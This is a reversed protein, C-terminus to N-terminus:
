NTKAQRKSRLYVLLAGGFSGLMMVSPEPVDSVIYYEMTPAAPKFGPEGATPTYYAYTFVGETGSESVTVNPTLYTSPLGVDALQSQGPEVESFFYVHYNGDFRLVDSVQSSGPDDLLLDGAVGAFPLTYQLTTIGSSPDTAMTHPFMQSPTFYADGAEDITLIAGQAMVSASSGALVGICVAIGFTKKFTKM